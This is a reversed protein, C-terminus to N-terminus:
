FIDLRQLTTRSLQFAQYKKRYSPSVPKESRGIPADLLHGSVASAGPHPLTM